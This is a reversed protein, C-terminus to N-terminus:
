ACLYYLWKDKTKRSESDALEKGFTLDFIRIKKFGLSKLLKTQYDPSIFFVDLSWEHSGDKLIIYEKNSIKNIEKNDIRNIKKRKFFIFANKTLYYPNFTFTIHAWNRISLINHTSFCLSGDPKLVRKIEKFIKDRGEANVYDCGNFSFLIFDFSNSGFRSLDRADAVIFNEPPIKEQFKKRCAKIM